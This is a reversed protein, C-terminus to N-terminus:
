GFPGDYRKEWLQTGDPGYKITAYDRHTGIGHSGGTVYVNGAADLAIAYDYDDTHAPGDYLRGWIVNGDSDYKLTAYDYGTGM